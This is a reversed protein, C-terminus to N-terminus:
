LNVAAASSKSPTVQSLEAGQNSSEVVLKAVSVDAAANSTFKTFVSFGKDLPHGQERREDLHLNYAQLGVHRSLGFRM